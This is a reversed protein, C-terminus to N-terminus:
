HPRGDEKDWGPIFKDLMYRITPSSLIGAICAAIAVWRINDTDKFVLPAEVPMVWKNILSVCTPIGVVKSIFGCLTGAALDALMVSNTPKRVQKTWGQWILAGVFGLFLALADPAYAAPSTTALVASASFLTLAATTASMTVPESMADKEIRLLKYSLPPHPFGQFAM